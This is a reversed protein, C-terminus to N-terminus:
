GAGMVDCLRPFLRPFLKDHTKSGFRLSLPGCPTSCATIGDAVMQRTLRQATSESASIIMPVAGRKGEDLRLLARLAKPRLDQAAVYRALRDNLRVVSCLRNVLGIQGLCVKAFWRAFSILAALSLHGLGDRDGQRPRDAAAMMAKDEQRGDVGDALGRALGRAALWLGGAGIGAHHGMDHPM